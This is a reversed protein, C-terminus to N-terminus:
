VRWRSRSRWSQGLSSSRVSLNTSPLGLIRMERPEAVPHARLEAATRRAQEVDAREQRAVLMEDEGAIVEVLRPVSMGATTTWQRLSADQELAGQVLRTRWDTTQPPDWSVGEAAHTADPSDSELANASTAMECGCHGLGTISHEHSAIVAPDTTPTAAHLDGGVIDAMEATLVECAHRVVARIEAEGSESDLQRIALFSIYSLDETITAGSEAVVFLRQRDHHQSLRRLARLLRDRSGLESSDAEVLEPDPPLVFM